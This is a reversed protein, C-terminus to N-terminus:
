LLERAAESLEELSLGSAYLKSGGNTVTLMILDKTRSLGFTCYCDRGNSATDVIDALLLILGEYSSPPTYGSLKKRAKQLQTPDIKGSPNSEKM